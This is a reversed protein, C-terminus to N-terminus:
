KAVPIIIQAGELLTNGLLSNSQKLAEVSINYNSAIQWLTEGKRVKHLVTAQQSTSGHPSASAQVSGSRVSGSGTASISEPNTMDSGPV